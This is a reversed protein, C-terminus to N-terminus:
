AKRRDSVECFQGIEQYAEGVLYEARQIIESYQGGGMDPWSGFHLTKQKLDYYRQCVPNVVIRSFIGHIENRSSRAGLHRGREAVVMKCLDLPKIDRLEQLHDAKARTALYILSSVFWTMPSKNNVYEGQGWIIGSDVEACAMLAAVRPDSITKSHPAFAKVMATLARGERGKALTVAIRTCDFSTTNKCFSAYQSILQDSFNTCFDLNAAVIVAGLKDIKRWVDGIESTFFKVTPHAKRWKSTAIVAASRDVAIIREPPIGLGVIYDIEEGGSSPMVLVHSRDDHQSEVWAPLLAAWVDERYKQKKPTQYGCSPAIATDTFM